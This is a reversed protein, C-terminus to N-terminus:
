KRRWRSLTRAKALPETFSAPRPQGPATMLFRVDEGVWDMIGLSVRGKQGGSLNLYDAEMPERGENIRVKAHVMVQGGFVVKVM